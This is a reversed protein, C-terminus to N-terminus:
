VLKTPCRSPSQHTYIAQLFTPDLDLDLYESEEDLFFRANGHTDKDGLDM